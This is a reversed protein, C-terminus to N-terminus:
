KETRDGDGGAPVRDSEAVFRGTKTDPQIQGADRTQQYAQHYNYAGVGAWQM